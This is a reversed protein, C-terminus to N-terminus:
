SDVFRQRRTADGQVHREAFVKVGPLLPTGPTCLEPVNLMMQRYAANCAILRTEADRISFPEELAEIAQILRERAEGAGDGGEGARDRAAELEHERGKLESIDAFEVVTGGDPTRRVYARSITSGGTRMEIVGDGAAMWGLREQVWAEKDAEKDAVDRAVKGTA